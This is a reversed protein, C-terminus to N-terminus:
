FPGWPERNNTRAVHSDLFLVNWGGRHALLGGEAAEQNTINYSAIRRDWCVPVQSPGKGAEAYTRTGQNWPKWDHDGDILRGALYLNESACVNPAAGAFFNYHYAFNQNKKATQGTTNNFNNVPDGPPISENVKVPNSPCNWVRMDSKVYPRLKAGVFGSGDGYTQTPGASFFWAAWPLRGKNDDAYMVLARGIQSMNSKCSTARANDRATAFVPFLMAALIAIIAIVVLLEILTFGNRQAQRM